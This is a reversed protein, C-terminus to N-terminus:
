VSRVASSRLLCLRVRASSAVVSTTQQLEPKTPMRKAVSAAGTSVTSNQRLMTDPTSNSGEPLLLLPTVAGTDSVVDVEFNVAASHNLGDIARLRTSVRPRPDSVGPYGLGAVETFCENFSETLKLDFADEAAEMAQLAELDM